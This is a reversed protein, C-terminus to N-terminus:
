KCHAMAIDVVGDMNFDGVVFYLSPDLIMNGLNAVAGDKGNLMVVSINDDIYQINVLDEAGDGNLDVRSQLYPLSELAFVDSPAFLGKGQNAYVQFTFKQYDSLLLDQLGDGNFDCPLMSSFDAYVRSTPLFIFKKLGKGDVVITNDVRNAVAIDSSGDGSFDAIAAAAPGLGSFIEGSIRYQGQGEGLYVIAKNEKKGTVVMDPLDDNNLRGFAASEQNDLSRLIVDMNLAQKGIGALDISVTGSMAQGLADSSAIGVATALPRSDFRGIFLLKGYAPAGGSGAENKPGAQEKVPDSEANESSEESEAESSLEGGERLVEKLAKDFPNEDSANSESPVQGNQGQLDSLLDAVGIAVLNSIVVREDINWQRLRPRLDHPLFRGGSAWAYKNQATGSENQLDPSDMVWWQSESWGSWSFDSQSATNVYPPAKKAPSFAANLSHISRAIPLYIPNAPVLSRSMDGATAREEEAFMGQSRSSFMGLPILLFLAFGIWLSSHNIGAKSIQRRKKDMKRALKRKFNESQNL